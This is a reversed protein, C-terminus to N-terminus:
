GDAGPEKPERGVDKPLRGGLEGALKGTRTTAAAAGGADAAKRLPPFLSDLTVGEEGEQLATRAGQLQELEEGQIDEAKEVGLAALLRDLAVGAKNFYELARTRRQELTRADGVAVKRCEKVLQDVYARPVVGGFVANRAAISCAANITLTIMDASYPRRNRDVIGRRIYIARRVNKQMDMAFGMVTVSDKDIAVPQAGWLINGWASAVIEALRISPGEIRVEGFSGDENKRKRPLSYYCAAATEADLTAMSRAEAISAQVNRPYKRATAIQLDIETRSLSDLGGAGIPLAMTATTPEAPPTKDDTIPAPEAM